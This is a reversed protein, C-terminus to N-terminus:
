YVRVHFTFLKVEQATLTESLNGFGQSYFSRLKLQAINASKLIDIPCLSSCKFATGNNQQNALACLDISEIYSETNEDLVKLNTM